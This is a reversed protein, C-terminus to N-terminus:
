KERKTKERNKRKNQELEPYLEGIKPNQEKFFPQGRFEQGGHVHKLQTRCSKVPCRKVEPLKIRVGVNLYIANQHHQISSMENNAGSTTISYSKLDFSPRVVFWFYESVEYEFPLGLNFFLGNQLASKDYQNGYKVKGIQIDVNYDWGKVHYVKAGAMIYYRFMFTSKFDPIYPQVGQYKPNLQKIKHYEYMIGGGIRFRDIDLQLSLSVPINFGNGKYKIESSDTYLIRSWPINLDAAGSDLTPANLWNSTGTFDISNGSVTYDNLIYLRPGINVSDSNPNTVDSLVKMPPLELIDSDIQHSYFTRGYGFNANLSFKNLFARVPSAKRIKGGDWGQYAHQYPNFAQGFALTNCFGLIAIIILQYFRKQM